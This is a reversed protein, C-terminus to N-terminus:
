SPAAKAALELFPAREHGLDPEGCDNLIAARTVDRLRVAEQWRAVGGGADTGPMIPEGIKVDIRGPRLFGSDGRLMARTGRIAIPVVPVGAEAAAAFAGMQFPLLGPMRSFTAEPFYIHAGGKRVETAAREADSLSKRTDFREVFHSGIRQLFVRAIFSGL